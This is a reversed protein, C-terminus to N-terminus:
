ERLKRDNSWRREGLERKLVSRLISNGPDYGMINGFGYESLEAHWQQDDIALLHDLIREFAAPDARHTWFPGEDPYCDPWVIGRDWILGRDRMGYIHKHITFFATKKNRAAAELGLTSTNSVVVEASDVAAYSAGFWNGSAFDVTQGVLDCFYAQEDRLGKPSPSRTIILLRRGRSSAYRVLFNVIIADPKRYFEEPSFYHTGIRVGQNKYQSVFAIIGTKDPNTKPVHNNMVSGTPVVSGRIYKAYEAGTISGFTLMYNVRYGDLAAPRKSLHEFVDLYYGRYGNQIFMTKLNQHRAALNYFGLNNDIFTVVLRPRVRQIFEDAYVNWRNGKKLLSALLVLVNIEEGRCHLVEPNWPHLYELLVEKSCADYILVDSNRPWRWRKKALFLYRLILRLKATIRSLKM